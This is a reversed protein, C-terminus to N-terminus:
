ETRTSENYPLSSASLSAPSVAAAARRGSSRGASGDFVFPGANNRPTLPGEGSMVDGTDPTSVRDSDAAQHNSISIAASPINVGTLNMMADEGTSSPEHSDMSRIELAPADPLELDQRDETQHQEARRQPVDPNNAISALASGNAASSQDADPVWEGDEWDDEIQDVEAELDTVARCNPCTFQPYSEGTNKTDTNADKALSQLQAHRSKNFNNPRKQWSRNCEVRIKVCRFIAEEGGRFDIGLQVVDGDKVPFLRSESNPQSLRIHNLFTGSSSQVDRIHWQGNVFSFECHKRSVVKSKFGIPADSPTLPNALQPGERESYRGVRIISSQSPLTRTVPAFHLSPRGARLDQHPFLRITPLKPRPESQEKNEDSTAQEATDVGSSLGQAAASADGGGRSVPPGVSAPTSHDSISPLHAGSRTM